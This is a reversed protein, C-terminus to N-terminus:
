TRISPGSGAGPVVTPSTGDVKGSTKTTPVSDVQKASQDFKNILEFVSTIHIEGPTGREFMKFVSM